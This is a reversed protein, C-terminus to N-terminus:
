YGLSNKEKKYLFSEGGRYLHLNSNYTSLAQKVDEIPIAKAINVSFFHLIYQILWPIGTGESIVDRFWFSLSFVWAFIALYLVNHSSSFCHMSLAITTAIIFLSLSTNYPWPSPSVLHFPHIQFNSRVILTM